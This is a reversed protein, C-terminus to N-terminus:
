NIIKEDLKTLPFLYMCVRYVDNAEEDNMLDELDDQAKRIIEKARALSKPNAPFTYNTFDRQDVRVDQIKKKAMEMDNMHMRQLSLDKVDDTTRIPQPTRTMLGKEDIHVLNLSQLRLISKRIELETVGLRNAMWSIESKFAKTRILSLIAFHIWDSILEFQDSNLKLVELDKDRSKRDQTNRKLVLPFDQLLDTRESPDLMLKDAIKEAIKRSVRRQGKLIENTASPQMELKAALARLSFSPNKTKLELFKRQLLQQIKIQENM